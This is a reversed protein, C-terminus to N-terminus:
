WGPGLPFTVVKVHKISGFSQEDFLCTSCFGFYMESTAGYKVNEGGNCFLEEKGRM